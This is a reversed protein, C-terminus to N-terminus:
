APKENMLRFAQALENKAKLQLADNIGCTAPKSSLMAALQNPDIPKSPDFEICRSGIEAPMRKVLAPHALVHCGAALADLITTKFGFGLPTLVALARVSCLLDWPEDLSKMRSVNPSLEDPRDSRLVGPSVEFAWGDFVDSNATTDALRNFGELMTRGIADRGGALCVMKLARQVWPQPEVQPRIRPWPCSYPIDYVAARGPLRKWYHRNDWDSIGLLAHATKKCRVDRQVLRFCGYIARLNKYSPLWDIESRQWHQFAEANVTRVYLRARPLEAKLRSLVEPLFSYYLIIDTAGIAACSQILSEIDTSDFQLLKFKFPLQDLVQDLAEIDKWQGACYRGRQRKEVCLIIVKAAQKL